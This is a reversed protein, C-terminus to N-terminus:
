PTELEEVCDLMLNKLADHKSSSVDNTEPRLAWNYCLTFRDCLTWMAHWCHYKQEAEKPGFYYWRAQWGPKDPIEVVKDQETVYYLFAGDGTESWTLVIQYGASPYNTHWGVMGHGQYYNLLTNQNAGIAETFDRKWQYWFPGWEKMDLDGIPVACHEVPYGEHEMWNPLYEERLVKESCREKMTEVKYDDSHFRELDNTKRAYFDNVFTGLTNLIEANRLNIEM